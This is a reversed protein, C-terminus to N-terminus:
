GSGPRQSPKEVPLDEPEIPLTWGYQLYWGQGLDFHCWGSESVKFQDDCIPTGPGPGYLLMGSFERGFREGSGLDFFAHELYTHHASVFGVGADDLLKRYRSQTAADIEVRFVHPKTAVVENDIMAVTDFDPEALIAKALAEMEHSNIWLHLRAHDYEPLTTGVRAALGGLILAVAVASATLWTRVHRGISRRDAALM